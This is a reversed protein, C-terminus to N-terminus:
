SCHERSSLRKASQKRSLSLSQFVTCYFHKLSRTYCNSVSSFFIVSSNFFMLVSFPETHFFIQRAFFRPSTSISELHHNPVCPTFIVTFFSFLFFFFPKACSRQTQLYFISASGSFIKDVFFNIKKTQTHM